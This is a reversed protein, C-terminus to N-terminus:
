KNWLDLSKILDIEEEIIKIGNLEKKIENIKYSKQIFTKLQNEIKNSLM